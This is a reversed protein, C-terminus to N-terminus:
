GWPPNTADTQDAYDIARLVDCAALITSLANDYDAKSGEPVFERIGPGFVAIVQCIVKMTTILKSLGRIRIM